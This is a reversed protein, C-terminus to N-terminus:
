WAAEGQLKLALTRVIEKYVEVRMSEDIKEIFAKPMMFVQTEGKSIVREKRIKPEILSMEGFCLGTGITDVAMNDDEPLRVEAQGKIMICFHGSVEGEKFIIEGDKFDKFKGYHAIMVLTENSIHNFFDNSQLLSLYKEPVLPPVTTAQRLKQYFSIGQVPLPLVYRMGFNELETMMKPPCLIIIPLRLKNKIENLLVLIEKNHETRSECKWVIVNYDPKQMLRGLAQYPDSHIAELNLKNFLVQLGSKLKPDAGIFMVISKKEEAM